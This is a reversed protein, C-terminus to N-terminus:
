VSSRPQKGQTMTHQPRSLGIRLCFIIRMIRIWNLWDYNGYVVYCSVDSASGHADGIGRITALVNVNVNVNGNVRYVHVCVSLVVIVCVLYACARAHAYRV